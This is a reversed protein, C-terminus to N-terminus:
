KKQKGSRKLYKNIEIMNKIVTTPNLSVSSIGEKILFKLFSFDSAVEGCIGSYKKKRKCAQIIEKIMKKVALNFENGIKVLKSNDRDIGLILQTLDNSGISFGDCYRLFQDALLANSPIEAMLYIKLNNSKKLGNDNLIKIVRKLEELTRCFPLLLSINKLGFQDRAKKVALCELIFAKQFSPDYYRSVGRWGLMPNEEKPEFLEGALLSRYENSKFDSFRIIVEKPWFACAIQSIGESLEDVFFEEKKRYGATLEEIKRKLKKDKLKQFNLLALPHIKIKETLIFELRGLGVGDVPLFSYKFAFDPQGINIFIKVKLKPVKKLNYRKKIIKCFGNFVQGKQGSSCDVTIKQGNKLVKSAQHTGVICPVGLERSVIAAHCTPGGEDTILGSAIRIAPMWDPDTMPAVLIEGEKFSDIESVNKIVKVKGQSAKNGVALGSLIPKEKTLVQYEEYFNIEKKGFVTEPRAQLIYLQNSKGDKAWEIDQPLNYHKEILLSWRALTLVEDPSLSFKKQENLPVRVKKLGSKKDFIFKEKKFGLDKLILSPYGKELTRKFVIFRDPTIGGKVIMEGVGFISNIIIVNRFGTETDITFIVGSSGLDSRVMEQIGLSLGFRLHSINNEQRYVIARDNFASAFAKKVSLLFDKKTRLNLFTEFQGAFSLRPSDECVGSSRVALSVNKKLKLFHEYSEEIEKLLDPPFNGKEFLARAKRGTEKLSKINEKKFDKFISKLKEQLHNYKFFRWYGNTNIIFGKPFNIGKKTLSSIMEGLSANKGGVLILDKFSINEYFSIFRKEGM